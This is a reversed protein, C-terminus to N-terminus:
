QTDLSGHQQYSYICANPHTACYSLLPTLAEMTAQTGQAQQTALTGLTVLLTPDIARAYYM